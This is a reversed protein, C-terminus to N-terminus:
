QVAIVAAGLVGNWIKKEKMKNQSHLIREAAPSDRLPFAM